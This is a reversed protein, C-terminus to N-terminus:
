RDYNRYWEVTPQANGLVRCKLILDVGQVVDDARSPQKLEVGASKDIGVVDGDTGGSLPTALTQLYPPCLPVPPRFDELPTWPYLGM